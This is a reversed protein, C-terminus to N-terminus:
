EKVATVKDAPVTPQNIEVGFLAGFSHLATLAAGLWGSIEVKGVMPILNSASVGTIVFGIIISSITLTKKVEDPTAKFIQGFGFKVQNDAM